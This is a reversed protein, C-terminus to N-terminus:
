IENIILNLIAETYDSPIDEIENGNEDWANIQEFEFNEFAVDAFTPTDWDGKCITEISKFSVKGESSIGQDPAHEFYVVEQDYDVKIIAERKNIKM